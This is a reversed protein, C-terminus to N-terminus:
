IQKEDLNGSKNKMMVDSIINISNLPTKLEHSMNALFISKAQNAEMAEERAQTLFIQQKRYIHFHFYMAAGLSVALVAKVLKM